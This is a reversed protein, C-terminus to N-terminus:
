ADLYESGALSLKDEYMKVMKRHYSLKDIVRQGSPQSTEWLQLNDPENDSRIGNLHHVNEGPLLFRGLTKEMVIQHERMYGKKGSRPHEPLYIHVYGKEDIYRGGKWNTAGSGSNCKRCRTSQRRMFDGCNPCEVRNKLDVLKQCIRCISHYGTTMARNRNYEAWLKYEFCNSCQRGNTDKRLGFGAPKRIEIGLASKRIHEAVTTHDCGFKRAISRFSMGGEYLRAVESWDINETSM